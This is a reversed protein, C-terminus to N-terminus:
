YMEVYYNLNVLRYDYDEKQIGISRFFIHILKIIDDCEEKRTRNSIKCMHKLQKYFIMFGDTGYSLLACDENINLINGILSTDESNLKVKGKYGIKKIKDFYDNGNIIIDFYKEEVEFINKSKEQSYKEKAIEIFQTYYDLPKVCYYKCYIDKDNKLIYLYYKRISYEIIIKFLLEEDQEIIKDLISWVKVEKPDILPPRKDSEFSKM